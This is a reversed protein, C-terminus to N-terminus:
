RQIEKGAGARFRKDVAYELEILKEGREVAEHSPRHSLYQNLNSIRGGIGYASKLSAGKGTADANREFPDPTSLAVFHTQISGNLLSSSAFSGNSRLGEPRRWKLRM